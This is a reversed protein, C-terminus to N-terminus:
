YVHLDLLADLADSLGRTEELDVGAGAAQLFWAFGWRDTAHDLLATFDHFSFLYANEGDYVIVAEKKLDIAVNSCADQDKCHLHWLGCVIPNHMLVPLLNTKFTAAAKRYSSM